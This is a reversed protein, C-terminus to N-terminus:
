FHQNIKGANGGGRFVATQLGGAWHISVVHRWAVVRIHHDNDERYWCVLCICHWSSIIQQMKTSKQLFVPIPANEQYELLAIGNEAPAAKRIETYPNRSVSRTAPAIWHNKLRSIDVNRSM